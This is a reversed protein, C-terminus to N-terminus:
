RLLVLTAKDFNASQINHKSRDTSFKAAANRQLWSDSSLQGPQVRVRPQQQRSLAPRLRQVSSFECHSGILPSRFSEGNNGLTLGLHQRPVTRSLTHCRSLVANSDRLLVAAQYATQKHSCGFERNLVSCSALWIALAATV